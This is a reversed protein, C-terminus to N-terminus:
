MPNWSDVKLLPSILCFVSWSFLLDEKKKTIEEMLASKQPLSKETNHDRNNSTDELFMTPLSDKVNEIHGIVGIKSILIQQYGLHIPCNQNVAIEWVFYTSLHTRQLYPKPFSIKPFEINVSWKSDCSLPTLSLM